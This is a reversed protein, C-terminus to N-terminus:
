FRSLDLSIHWQCTVSSGRAWNTNLEYGFAVVFFAGKLSIMPCM